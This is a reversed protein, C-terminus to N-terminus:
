AETVVIRNRGSGKAAYLAHDAANLLARDSLGPHWAAVGGSFTIRLTPVQGPVELEAVTQRMRDLVRVAEDPATNPMLVAFEEGGMRALVDSRRLHANLNDVLFKLTVDGVAHGRSDNIRKFHDIDIIGLSLEGGYRKARELETNLLASFARRNLAGTLYDHTAQEQLESNLHSLQTNAAELRLRYDRARLYYLAGVWLGWALLIGAGAGFLFIVQRQRKADNLVDFDSIVHLTLGLDIMARSGILVPRGDLMMVDPHDAYGASRLPFPEFTNTAYRQLRQETPLSPLHSNPMVNFLYKPNDTMVIVGYEDAVVGGSIRILHQLHPLNLKVGVTGVVKEGDRVPMSFFLGPVHTTRGVAFQHGPVGTIATQYHERDSYDHGVTSARSDANSSSVSIGKANMVYILDLDFSEAIDHFFVNEDRVDEPHLIASLAHGEESVWTTVSRIQGLTSELDSESDTLLSAIQVTQRQLADDIRGSEWYQVLMWTLAVIAPACLLTLLSALLLPSANLLRRMRHGARLPM